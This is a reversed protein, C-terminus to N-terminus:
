QKRAKQKIPTVNDQSRPRVKGILIDAPLNAIIRKGNEYRWDFDDACYSPHDSLRKRYAPRRDTIERTM